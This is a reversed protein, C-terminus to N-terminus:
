QEPRQPSRRYRLSFDAVHKCLSVRPEHVGAEYKPWKIVRRPAPHLAPHM